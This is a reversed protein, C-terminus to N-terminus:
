IQQQQQVHTKTVLAFFDLKETSKHLLKKLLLLRKTDWSSTPYNAEEEASLTLLLLILNNM